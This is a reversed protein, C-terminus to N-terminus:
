MKNSHCFSKHMSWHGAQCDVGCYHVFLCNSCLYLQSRDRESRCYICMSMRPVSRVRLYIKKLCQCPIRRRFFKIGDYVLGDKLNSFLVRSKGLDMTEWYKFSHSSAICFGAVTAALHASRKTITDNRLLLNAGLNILLSQLKEQTEKSDDDWIIKYKKSANLREITEDIVKSLLFKKSPGFDYVAKMEIELQEVFKYCIDDKSIVECGHRCVSEKHLILNCNSERAKAKRAKGKARKRSPM